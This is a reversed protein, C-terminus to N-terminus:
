SLVNSNPRDSKPKEFLGEEAEKLDGKPGPFSELTERFGAKEEGHPAAFDHPFAELAM